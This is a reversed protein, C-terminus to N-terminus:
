GVVPELLRIQWSRLEAIGRWDNGRAQRAAINELVARTAVLSPELGLESAVADRARRLERLRSRLAPDETGPRTVRLAPWSEPPEDAARRILDLIERSVRGSTLSRPFGRLRALAEQTKPRGVALAVMARDDMVRFPPRDLRRATEDRWGWIERLVGLARRDLRSAGKTRRFADPDPGAGSWRVRELRRFEEEAWERRGQAVLRDELIGRLELLHRTDAAAYEVMERPLPRRSWDARQFKKDLHVDCHAELLSALGFKTEGTLRAAIMTDFLSRVHLAHDRRLLRLDYDAGHLVKPVAPDELVAGLPALDLGTLPDILSTGGEMSIQILCIKEHYRHYSDAETDLALPGHGLEALKAALTDEDRIWGVKETGKGKKV